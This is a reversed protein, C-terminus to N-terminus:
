DAAASKPSTGQQEPVIARTLASPIGRWQLAKTPNALGRRPVTFRGSLNLNLRHRFLRLRAVWEVPHSLLVMGSRM